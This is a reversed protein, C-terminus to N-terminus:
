AAEKHARVGAEARDAIKALERLRVLGVAAILARLLAGAAYDANYLTVALSFAAFSTTILTWGARELAWTTDLSWDCRNCYLAAMVTLGGLAAMIGTAWEVPEPFVDLSPSVVLPTLQAAVISLGIVLSWVAVLTHATHLWWRDRWSPPRTLPFLVRDPM